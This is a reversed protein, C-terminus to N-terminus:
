ELFDLGLNSKFRPDSSDFGLGELNVSYTLDSGIRSALPGLASDIMSNVIRPCREDVPYLRHCGLGDSGRFAYCAADDERSASAALKKEFTELAAPAVVLGNRLEAVREPLSKGDHGGDEFQFSLIFFHHGVSPTLQKLGHIVHKRIRQRTTKVELDTNAFRFDHRDPITEDRGIWSTVYSPGKSAVLRGPFVVRRDARTATRRILCCAHRYPPALAGLGSAIASTASAGNTELNETILSALQHVGFLNAESTSIEFVPNGDIARIKIELESLPSMPLLENPQCPVRLLM